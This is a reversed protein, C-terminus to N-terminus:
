QLLTVPPDYYHPGRLHEHRPDPHAAQRRAGYIQGVGTEGIDIGPKLLKGHIRPTRWLANDRSLQRILQRTEVAVSPRGRRGHRLKWTWFLCFRKRHWDIVTEPKVIMLASTLEAL